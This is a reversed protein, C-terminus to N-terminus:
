SKLLEEFDALYMEAVKEYSYEQATEVARYSMKELKNPDSLARQITNALLNVANPSRHDFAWGNVGDQLYDQFVELSSVIPVLGTAMAELPAVGFSEGKEALSPYCFLHAEHFAKLFEHREYRPPLFSVDFGSARRKIQSYYKKGGGGDEVRHAGMIILKSNQKRSVLKYAEILLEVGKEPHVRGAYFIVKKSPYSKPVKTPKFINVNVANPIVRIKSSAAPIERAIMERIANSVASFRHVGARYYLKMQGKPVRQVNVIIKANKARFIRLFIPLWFANTVIVDAPHIQVLKVFSYLIDKLINIYINKTSRMNTSRYISFCSQPSKKMREGCAYLTVQHGQKAMIGALDFWIREVAGCKAPPVSLFPGTVIAIRM